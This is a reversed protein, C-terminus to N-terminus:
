LIDDGNPKPDGLHMEFKAITYSGDGMSKIVVPMVSTGGPINLEGIVEALADRNVNKISHMLGSVNMTKWAAYFRESVARKNVKREAVPM